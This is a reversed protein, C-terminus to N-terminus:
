EPSCPIREYVELADNGLRRSDTRRWQGHAQSLTALGIDAIGPTGGGILIPARHILLRDVLKASLFAAATGAGGEIFLYQIGTMNAISEPSPLANWGDPAAGRTLVWRQPSHHELGPLRVDLMPADNRVTAGGVLIADCRSREMHCHARAADGTIWRSTGNAMAICGDLSMALKLTVHPRDSLLYGCLGSKASPSDLVDAAIGASRIRALGNGATRADPDLCGIVVRKLTSAAVLDACSPGRESAHACPELTVYLTAGEAGNGALELAIAEAHPRGGMQTWGRSVVFGGDALVSQPRVILAGVAPNPRSQPRARMAIAAAAAMWRDDDSDPM